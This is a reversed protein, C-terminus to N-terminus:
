VSFREIRANCALLKQDINEYGRDIHYLRNVVTEGEAMLGALVLSVSARLDTAMVQTGILKKVGTVIATKGHISINAGLRSLEPIHMFRNEFINETISSTGNCITMLTMFQAQLDTAFGPYPATQVDVPIIRNDGGSRHVEINDLNESTKSIIKSDVGALHLVDFFQSLHDYVCNKLILSGNTVAAAIAYTGAEIRDPMIRFDAGHLSDSGDITIISSGHGDIKAGMLILLDALAIVEPEMAANIIRTTGGALSAAMLINETGTVTSIPFHIDCGVLGNPASAKIYGNDISIEAGMQELANLHLNVGRAGIACGGPLSVSAKRCRAVLPGLVLISARMKRVFDYPAETAKIDPTCVSISSDERTSINMGLYGLLELMSDIDTLRPVNRFTVPSDTLLSAALAPLSLNKSGSIVVEGLLPIGGFVRM